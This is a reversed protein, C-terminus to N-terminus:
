RIQPIRQTAYSFLPVATRYLTNEEVFIRPLWVDFHACFGPRVPWSKASMKNKPKRPNKTVPFAHHRVPRSKTRMPHTIPIGIDVCRWSFCWIFWRSFRAHLAPAQGRGPTPARMAHTIRGSTPDSLISSKATRRLENVAKGFTDRTPVRKECRAIDSRQTSLEGVNPRPCAETRSCREGRILRYYIAYICYIELLGIKEYSM